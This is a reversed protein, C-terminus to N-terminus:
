TRKGDGLLTGLLASYLGEPNTRFRNEVEQAMEERPVMLDLEMVSGVDDSLSLTVTYTGNPRRSTSAKVQSKRRLKQNCISVNKDTRIRVSYPLSSACIESNRRGKDTIAYLGDESLTLHGTRVLDALCDSFDFYDIGDDCLTLELVTDFPIPEIVRDAIYLILFKIELKDRIFGFGAVSEAEQLRSHRTQEGCSIIM